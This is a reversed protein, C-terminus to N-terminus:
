RWSYATVRWVEVQAIRRRVEALQANTMEPSVDSPLSAILREALDTRVLRRGVDTKVIKEGCQPCVSTPVSETVILKGKLWFGQNIRKEKM